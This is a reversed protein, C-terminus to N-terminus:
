LLVGAGATALAADRAHVRALVLEQALLSPLDMALSPQERQIWTRQGRSDIKLQVEMQARKHQEPQLRSVPSGRLRKSRARHTASVPACTLTDSLYEPLTSRGATGDQMYLYRQQAM